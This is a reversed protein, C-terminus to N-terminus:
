PSVFWRSDAKGTQVGVMKPGGKGKFCFLSLMVIFNKKCFFLFLLLASSTSQAIRNILDEDLFEDNQSSLSLSVSCRRRKQKDLVLFHEISVRLVDSRLPVAIISPLSAM